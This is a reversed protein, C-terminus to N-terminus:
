CSNGAPARGSGASCLLSCSRQLNGHNELAETEYIQSGCTAPMGDFVLKIYADPTANTRSFPKNKTVLSPREVGATQRRVSPFLGFLGILVESGGRAGIVPAGASPGGGSFKM